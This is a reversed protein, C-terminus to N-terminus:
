RFLDKFNLKPYVEKFRKKALERLEKDPNDAEKSNCQLCAPVTLGYIMSTKRNSGPFVEHTSEKAVGCFYCQKLNDTIISFRNNELKRQKATQKKMPKSAKKFPTKTKLQSSKMEKSKAKPFAFSTYDISM